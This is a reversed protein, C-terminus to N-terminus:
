GLCTLVACLLWMRCQLSRLIWGIQHAFFVSHTSECSTFSHYCSRTDTICEEEQEYRVGPLWKHRVFLVRSICRNNIALVINREKCTVDPIKCGWSESPHGGTLQHWSLHGLLLCEESLQWAHPALIFGMSSVHWATVQQSVKGLTVTLPSSQEARVCSLKM